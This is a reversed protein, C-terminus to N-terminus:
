ILMCADTLCGEVQSLLCVVSIYVVVSLSVLSLIRTKVHCLNTGVIFHTKPKANTFDSM